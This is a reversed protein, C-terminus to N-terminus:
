TEGLKLFEVYTGYSGGNLTSNLEAAVTFKIRTTSTNTIDLYNSTVVTTTCSNDNNIHGYQERLISYSGGSNTSLRIFAGVYRVEAAGINYSSQSFRVRYIGTSPFTFIGSSNSMGTGIKGTTDESWSTIDTTSQYNFGSSCNWSNAMTIGAAIGTLSAGSIAPLAGTLNSAALSGSFSSATMIGTIGFNGNSSMTIATGVKLGGTLTSVGSVSLGDSILVTPTTASEVTNVKLTSM